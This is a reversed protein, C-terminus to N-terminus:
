RLAKLVTKKARKLGKRLKKLTADELGTVRKEAKVLAKGARKAHRSGGEDLRLLADEIRMLDSSLKKGRKGSLQEQFRERAVQALTQIKVRVESLHKKVMEDREAGKPHAAESLQKAQEVISSLARPSVGRVKKLEEEGGQAIKEFSDLGADNLRKALIRGVGKLRQLDTASPEM